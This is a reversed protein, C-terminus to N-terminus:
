FMALTATSPETEMIQTSSAQSSVMRKTGDFVAGGSDGDVTTYTATRQNYMQVGSLFPSAGIMWLQGCSINEGRMRGSMCVQM